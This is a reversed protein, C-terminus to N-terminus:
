FLHFFYINKGRVKYVMNAQDSARKNLLQEQISAV